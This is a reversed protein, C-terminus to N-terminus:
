ATLPKERDSGWQDTDLGMEPFDEPSVEGTLMKRAARAVVRSVVPSVANAAMRYRQTLSANEPFLFDREFGMISLVERVSLVRPANGGVWSDPHLIYTKAVSGFSPAREGWVLRAWGYKGTEYLERYRDITELQSWEHDAVEGRSKNKLWGIADHVTPCPEGVESLQLRRETDLARFFHRWSWYASNRLGVTFLRRRKTAAGFDSYRLIQSGVSYGRFELERVWREYAPDSKLPLVNEMIFLRPQIEIVHDFFRALLAHDEHFAGRKQLNVTSWPRCPPGGVVVPVPRIEDEEGLDKLVHQGIQNEHFVRASMEDNDVGVVAFQDDRFGISMGGIGAFLDLVELSRPPDPSAFGLLTQILVERIDQPSFQEQYAPHAGPVNRPVTGRVWHHHRGTM